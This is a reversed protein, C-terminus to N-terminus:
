PIESFNQWLKRQIEQRPFNVIYSFIVEICRLEHPIGVRKRGGCGLLIDMYCLLLVFEVILSALPWVILGILLTIAIIHLPILCCRSLVSVYLLCCSALCLTNTHSLLTYVHMCVYSTVYPM